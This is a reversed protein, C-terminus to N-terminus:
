NIAAEAARCLDIYDAPPALTHSWVYICVMIEAEAVVEFLM